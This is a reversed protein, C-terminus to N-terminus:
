DSSLSGQCKEGKSQKKGPYILNSDGWDEIM